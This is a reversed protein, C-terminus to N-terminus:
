LKLNPNTTEYLELAPLLTLPVLLIVMIDIITM